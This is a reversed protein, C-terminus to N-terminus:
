DDSHGGNRALVPIPSSIRRSHADPPESTEALILELHERNNVVGRARVLGEHNLGVVFPTAIINWEKFLYTLDERALDGFQRALESQADPSEDSVAALIRVHPFNASLDLVDPVLSECPGCGPAVFLVLTERALDTSPLTVFSGLDPGGEEISAAASVRLSLRGVERMLAILTVAEVLALGVVALTLLNWGSM